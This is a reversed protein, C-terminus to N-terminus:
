AAISTDVRQQAYYGIGTPRRSLTDIGVISLTKPSVNRSEFFHFLQLMCCKVMLRDIDELYISASSLAEPGQSELLHEM